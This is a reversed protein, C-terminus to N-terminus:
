DATAIVGDGGVTKIGGCSVENWGCPVVVNYRLATPLNSIAPAQYQWSNGGDTTRYVRGAGAIELSLYGVVDDVFKIDNIVTAGTVFNIQVWTAGSNLTYYLKGNGTGVFWVSRNIVWVATLNVGVAPGVVLGFSEGGNYSVLLANSAGVAVITSSKGNIDNLDQATVSGDTIVTVAATPDTMLYIYGGAAAVFTKSPSASWIARPSKGAVYGSTSLTWNLTGAEIDSFLAYAHGGKAESVVVLRTSVGAIRNGSVGTLVPIDMTAWSGGGDLSYVIQSSLGPSGPNAATLFFMKKCGDSPRGCEGCSIADNFIGDLVEAVVTAAAQEGFQLPRVPGWDRFSLSGTIDIAKNDGGDLPNLDGLGLKTLRAGVVLVKSEWQTFDDPRTCRGIVVQMNFVCGRRRIDWWEERLFRDARQTFDATGLAPAKGVEDIIDFVNRVEASPAYVPEPEGLNQSTGTLTLCGLYDYAVGPNAGESQVFIRADGGKMVALDNPM